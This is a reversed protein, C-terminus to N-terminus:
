EPHADGVTDVLNVTIKCPTDGNYAQHLSIEDQGVPVTFNVTASRKWDITVRKAKSIPRSGVQVWRAKVDAVVSINGTNHIEAQGIFRYGKKTHSTFNGLVYDCSSSFSADPNPTPAQIPTSEPSSSEPTPEPSATASSANSTSSNDGRTKAILVSCGGIVALLVLIALGGTLVGLKRKDETWLQWGEPAPGWAPDPQWGPQPTWGKPPPPWNPPPNFRRTM